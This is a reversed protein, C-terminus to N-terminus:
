LTGHIPHDPEKERDIGLQFQEITKLNYESRLGFFLPPFPPFLTLFKRMRYMDFAKVLPIHGERFRERNRLLFLTDDNM